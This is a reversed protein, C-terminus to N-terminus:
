EIRATFLRGRNQWARYVDELTLDMVGLQRLSEEAENAMLKTESVTLLGGHLHNYPWVTIKWGTPTLKAMWSDTFQAAVNVSNNTLVGYERSSGHFRYPDSNFAIHSLQFSDRNLRAAKWFLPKKKLLYSPLVDLTWDKVLLSVRRYKNPETETAPIRYRLRCFEGMLEFNLIDDVGIRELDVVSMIEEEEYKFIFNDSDDMEWEEVFVASFPVGPATQLAIPLPLRPPIIKISDVIELELWGSDNLDGSTDDLWIFNDTWHSEGLPHNLTPPIGLM